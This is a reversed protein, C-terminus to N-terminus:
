KSCDVSPSIQYPVSVGCRTPLGAALAPQFGAIASAASKLCSCAQRRDAVTGAAASLARVGGCCSAPVPGRHDRLERLPGHLQGGGRLQHRSWLDWSSPWQSSACCCSRRRQTSCVLLSPPWPKSTTDVAVRERERVSENGLCSAKM